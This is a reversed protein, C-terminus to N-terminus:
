IIDYYIICHINCYQSLNYLTNTCFFFYYIIYYIGQDTIISGSFYNDFQEIFKGCYKQIRKAPITRFERGTHMRSQIKVLEAEIQDVLAKNQYHWIENNIAYKKLISETYSAVIGMSHKLTVMWKIEGNKGKRKILNYNNHDLPNFGVNAANAQEGGIFHELENESDLEDNQTDGYLQNFVTEDIEYDETVEPLEQPDPEEACLRLTDILFQQNDNDDSDDNDGGDGNDQVKMETDDDEDKHEQDKEKQEKDSEKAATESMDIDQDAPVTPAIILEYNETLCCHLINYLINTNFCIYLTNVVLM